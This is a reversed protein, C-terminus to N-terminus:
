AVNLIAPAINQLKDVVARMVDCRLTPRPLHPTHSCSCSHRFARRCRRRCFVLLFSSITAFQAAAVGICVNRSVERFLKAHSAFRSHPLVCVARCSAPSRSPPSVCPWELALIDGCAMLFTAFIVYCVSLHELSAHAPTKVTYSFLFSHTYTPTFTIHTAHIVTAHTLDRHWSSCCIHDLM